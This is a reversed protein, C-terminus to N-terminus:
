DGSALDSFHILAKSAHGANLAALDTNEVPNATELWEPRYLLQYGGTGDPNFLSGLQLHAPKVEVLTTKDNTDEPFNLNHVALSKEASTKMVEQAFIATRQASIRLADLLSGEVMGQRDRIQDFQDVPLAMSVAIAPLGHMAGELAGGITGSSLIMPWTVNYGLNIGSVVLSPREPLLHGLALNVCDAPTGNVKWAPCGLGEVSEPVLREHRSIAHGIWSREGDPACAFVRFRERLAEILEQLFRSEIGDDNTVLVSPGSVM